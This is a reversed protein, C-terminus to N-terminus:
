RAMGPVWGPGTQTVGSRKAAILGKFNQEGYTLADTTLDELSRLVEPVKPAVAPTDVNQAPAAHSSSTGVGVPQHTQIFDQILGLAEHHKEGVPTSRLEDRITQFEEFVAQAHEPGYATAFSQFSQALAQPTFGQVPMVPELQQHLQTSLTLLATPSLPQTM